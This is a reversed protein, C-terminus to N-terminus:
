IDISQTAYTPRLKKELITAELFAIEGNTPDISLESKILALADSLDGSAILTKIENLQSASVPNVLWLLSLVILM